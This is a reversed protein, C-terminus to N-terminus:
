GMAFAIAEPSSALGAAIARRDEGQLSRLVLHERDAQPLERGLLAVCCRRVFEADDDAAVAAALRQARTADLRRALDVEWGEAAGYRRAEASRALNRFLDERRHGDALHALWADRVAPLPRRGLVTGFMLDVWAGAEADWGDLVLDAMARDGRGPQLLEAALDGRRLGMAALAEGVRARLLAGEPDPGVPVARVAELYADLTRQAVVSIEFREAFRARAGDALRTRLDADDLLAALRAALSAADGPAAFVASVGDEVVEPIGGVGCTVIACRHSMAEVLVNGFSEYRSPFCVIGAAAYHAALADDDVEGVWGVAGALLPDADADDRLSTVGVDPGVVTLRLGPRQPLLLRLADLLVDLGKRHEVRGVFLLGDDVPGGTVGPDVTGLPVLVEADGREPPCAAAIARSAAHRRRAGALTQRELAVIAAIRDAAVGPELREVISSPTMVRLVTPLVPDLVCLLAEAQALSAAVVDFPAQAHLARIAAHKAAGAYLEDRAAFLELGRLGRDGVVVRHQHVGDADVWSQATGDDRHVVHVDHGARALAAATRQTVRRLGTPVDARHGTELFAIRAAM